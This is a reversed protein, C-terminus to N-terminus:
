PRIKCEYKSYVNSNRLQVTMGAGVTDGGTCTFWNNNESIKKRAASLSPNSLRNSQQTTLHTELAGKEEAELYTSRLYCYNALMKNKKNNQQQTGIM